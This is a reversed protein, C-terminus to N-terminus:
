VASLLRVIEKACEEMAERNTTEIMKEIENTRFFGYYVVKHHNKKVITRHHILSNNRLISVRLEVQYNTERIQFPWYGVLPYVAPWTAWWVFSDDYTPRMEIDLVKQTSVEIPDKEVDFVRLSLDNLRLMNRFVVKWSKLYLDRDALIFDFKRIYVSRVANTQESYIENQIPPVQKIDVSCAGMLFILSVFFLSYVKVM